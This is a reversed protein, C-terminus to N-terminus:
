VMGIQPEKRAMKETAKLNRSEVTILTNVGSAVNAFTKNAENMATVMSSMKGELAETSFTDRLDRNATAVSQERTTILEPGAEGTLYTKGPDM